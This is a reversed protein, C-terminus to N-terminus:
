WGNRSGKATSGDSAFSSEHLSGIILHQPSPSGDQAGDYWYTRLVECNSPLISGVADGLLKLFTEEDSVLDHRKLRMGFAAYSGQAYYYGADVFIAAREM